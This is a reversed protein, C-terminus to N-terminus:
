HPSSVSPFSVAVLIFNAEMITCPVKWVAIQGTGTVWIKTTSQDWEGQLKTHIFWEPKMVWLKVRVSVSSLTRDCTCSLNCYSFKGMINYLGIKNWERNYRLAGCSWHHVDSMGSLAEYSGQLVCKLDMHDRSYMGSLTRHSEQLLVQSLEMHGRTYMGSLTGHSHGWPTCVRSLEMHGRSYLVTMGSLTGHSGQLKYRLFSWTVEPIGLLTGHSGQHVYRFSSWTVGQHAYRFSSWTVGQHAYRFSSWTVGQHAYRFSSQTVWPTCCQWVLSSCCRSLRRTSRSGLCSAFLEYTPFRTSSRLGM